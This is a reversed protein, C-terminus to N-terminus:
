IDTVGRSNKLGVNRTESNGVVDGMASHFMPHPTCDLPSPAVLSGKPQTPSKLGGVSGYPTGQASALRNPPSGGRIPTMPLNMQTQQSPLSDGNVSGGSASANSRSSSMTMTNPQASSPPSPSRRPPPAPLPRQDGELQSAPLPAKDISDLQSSAEPPLPPLPSNTASLPTVPSGAAASSAATGGVGEVKAKLPPLPAPSFGNHLASAVIRIHGIDEDSDSDPSAMARHKSSATNRLSGCSIRRKRTGPDASRCWVVRDDSDFEMGLCERM